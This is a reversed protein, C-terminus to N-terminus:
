KVARQEPSMPRLLEAQGEAGPQEGHAGPGTADHGGRCPTRQTVGSMLGSGWPQVSMGAADRLSTIRARDGAQGERGKGRRDRTVRDRVM